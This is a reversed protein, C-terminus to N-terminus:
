GELFSLLEIVKNIRSRDGRDFAVKYQWNPNDFQTPSLEVKDLSKEMEVLIERLRSLVTTDNRVSAEFDQRLDMEKIHEVWKINLPQNHKPM